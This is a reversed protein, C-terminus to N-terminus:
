RALAKGCRLAWGHTPLIPMARETGASTKRCAWKSGVILERRRKNATQAREGELPTSSLAVPFSASATLVGRELLLRGGTTDAPQNARRPEGLLVSPLIHPLLLPPVLLAAAKPTSAKSRNSALRRASARTESASVCEAPFRFNGRSVYVGRRSLPRRM